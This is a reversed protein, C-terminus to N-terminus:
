CAAPRITVYRAKTSGKVTHVSRPKTALMGISSSSAAM